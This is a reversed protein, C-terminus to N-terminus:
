NLGDSIALKEIKQDSSEHTTDQTKDNETLKQIMLVNQNNEMYSM